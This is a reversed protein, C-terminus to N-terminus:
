GQELGGPPLSQGETVIHLIEPPMAQMVERASQSILKSGWATCILLKGEKLWHASFQDLPQEKGDKTRVLITKHNRPLWVKYGGRPHPRVEWGNIEM